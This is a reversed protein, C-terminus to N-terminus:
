AALATAEEPAPQPKAPPRFFLALAVAAALAAALPVLFLNKFDSLIWTAFFKAEEDPYQSLLWATRVTNTPMPQQSGNELKKLKKLEDETYPM